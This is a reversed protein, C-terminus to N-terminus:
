QTNTTLLTSLNSYNSKLFNFFSLDTAKYLKKLKTKHSSSHCTFTFFLDGGEQGICLWIKQYPILLHILIGPIWFFAALVTVIMSGWFMSFFLTKSIYAYCLLFFLLFGTKIWPRIFLTFSGKKALYYYFLYPSQYKHFSYFRKYDKELTEVCHQVLIEPPGKMRYRSKQLQDSKDLPPTERSTAWERFASRTELIINLFLGLSLLLFFTKSYVQFYQRDKLAPGYTILNWLFFSLAIITIFILLLEVAKNWHEEYQKEM